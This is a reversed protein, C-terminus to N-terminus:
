QTRNTTSLLVGAGMFVGGTIRNFFKARGKQLFWSSSKHGLYAYFLLWFLELFAFTSVFIIYQILLPSNANIFQPFLATFFIIAKPNSAGVIFGNLFSALKNKKSIKTNKEFHYDEQKSTFTKYGLYILYVAGIYKIITFIMDSSAILLGLGTFSLTMIGVIAFLSGLASFVALNFGQTVSKTICLLVSPGPSSTLVLIAITYYIWNTFEM